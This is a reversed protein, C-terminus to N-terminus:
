IRIGGNMTTLSQDSLHSGTSKRAEIKLHWFGDSSEEMSSKKKLFFLVAIIALFRKIVIIFYLSLLIITRTASSPGDVPWIVNFDFAQYTM